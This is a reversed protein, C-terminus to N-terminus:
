PAAVTSIHGETQTEECTDINDPIGPPKLIGTSLPFPQREELVRTEFKRIETATVQVTRPIKWCIDAINEFKFWRYRMALAVAKIGDIAAGAKAQCCKM